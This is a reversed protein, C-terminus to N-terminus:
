IRMPLTQRDQETVLLLELSMALSLLLLSLTLVLSNPWALLPQHFAIRKANEVTPASPVVPSVLILALAAAIFLAIFKISISVVRRVAQKLHYM